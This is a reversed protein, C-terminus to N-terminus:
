GDEHEPAHGGQASRLEAALAFFQAAKKAGLATEIGDDADQWADRVVTLIALGDPTLELVDSRRDDANTNRTIFGLALLRDTMSSMSGPSIGFEKALHRQSTPGVRHLADLILGQRHRVGSARLLATVRKEMLTAAHLFPHIKAPNRIVV